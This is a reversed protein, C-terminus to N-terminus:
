NEFIMWILLFLLIIFCKINIMTCYCIQDLDIKDKKLITKKPYLAFKHVKDIYKVKM